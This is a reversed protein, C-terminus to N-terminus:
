IRPSTIRPQDIHFPVHGDGRTLHVRFPSNSQPLYPRPSHGVFAIETIGSISPIGLPARIWGLVFPGGRGKTILCTLEPFPVQMLALVKKLSLRENHEFSIRCIRDNRKLAALVNDRCSIRDNYDCRILLPLFAPWVDMTEVVPTRPTYVLHLKLRRPSGFVVRRWRRCVHVLFQWVEVEVKKPFQYSKGDLKELDDVYLDFIALLVDDHLM